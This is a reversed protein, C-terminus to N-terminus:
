CKRTRWTTRLESQRRHAAEENRAFELLSLTEGDAIGEAQCAELIRVADAYQRGQSCRPGAVPLRGAARGRGQLRFRDALLAELSILREEGPMRQRAKRVLELAERPRLDRCAQVTEEVPQRNEQEKIQRDVQANLRFLATESPMAAM